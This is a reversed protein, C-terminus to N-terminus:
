GSRIPSRWPVRDLYAKLRDIYAIETPNVGNLVALYASVYDGLYFGAMMRILDSEGKLRIEKPLLNGLLEGGIFDLRASDREHDSESRILFVAYDENPHPGSTASELAGDWGEIENHCMEPFEGAFAHQKANENIQCKWRYAVVYPVGAEGYIIPLRGASFRALQKAENMAEPVSPALREREDKLAAIATRLEASWDHTVGLKGLALLMPLFLYGVASRPPQGGPIEVVAYGDEEAWDSLMGGSSVVVLYAGRERAAEYCARTEETNGSYSAAVVLTNQGVWAPLRYERSTAFVTRTHGSLLAGIMNGAIASGGMGAFLVQAFDRPPSKPKFEMGIQLATECQEPFGRILEFMGKSDLSQIRSVDDLTIEGIM